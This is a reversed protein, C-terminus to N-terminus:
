GGTSFWGRRVGAAQAQNVAQAQTYPMQALLKNQQQLLQILTNGQYQTLGPLGPAAQTALGGPVVQEPGREAFSYPMGSWKGYGFVPESVMGGASYGKAGPVVGGANYWGFTQEHQWAAEPTGYRSNGTLFVQGDQAATWSGLETTVCWVAQRELEERHFGSGSGVYPSGLRVHKQGASDTVHCWNGGLYAALLFARLVPGENQCFTWVDDPALHGDAELLGAVFAARQDSSMALVMLELDEEYGSRAFLDRTYPSRLRFQHVPARGNAPPRTYESHPIGELLVRLQALQKPKAESQFVSAFVSNPTPHVTHGDGAVWGLLEAEALSLPLGELQDAPAALRIRHRTGIHQTETFEERRYTTKGVQLNKETLWRHNPTSRLSVRNSYMRTVPADEYYHVATIKTWASRGTAQDYGITEDGVRVEDYAKWGNRTLIKGDLPVCKIYNVMAVAQGAATNVNGGYLAYESAGNIFQAMGLAGSSPNVAGMNFGAERMEVDYLATWQPGTWGAKAAATQLAALASANSVGAMSIAAASAAAAARLAQAMESVLVEGATGVISNTINKTAVPIAANMAAVQDASSIVGGSAYAPVRDSRALAGFGPIGARRALDAFKAAHSTPIILEGPAAMVLQGDRGAPTAGPPVIGGSAYSYGNFTQQGTVTNTAIGTSTNSVINGQVKISGGGAITEDIAVRINPPLKQLSTWLTVAAKNSVGFQKAVAVFNGVLTTAKAGLTDLYQSKLTNWLQQAASTTLDLGSKALAVFQGEAGKGKTVLTDLYQLRLESWLQGAMATTLGLGNKALTVFTSKTTTAKGALSVLNQANVSGWLHQAQAATYNLGNQAFSIFANKAMSTYSASGTMLTNNKAIVGWLQVYASTTLGLAGTERQMALANQTSASTLTIAANATHQLGQSTATVAQWMITAQKASIGFSAAMALFQDEALKSSGSMQVLAPMLQGLAKEVASYGTSGNAVGAMATALGQLAQPGKEATFIAGSIATTLTQNMAGALNMTDQYLNSSSVTLQQEIKNLQQMPNKVNGTWKALAQFSTTAPGGALQALASVEAMAANSGKALPLLTAVMDKGAQALLTQGKAGAVSVGSLTTLSNYLTTANTVETAFAGRAALSAQTIGNLAAGAATGTVRFKGLTNTFTVGKAGTSSLAQSLTGLGTGFTSFASEGSTVMSIFSSYASTLKSISSQGMESQLALANVANGVQTANLGFQSWGQLLGQVKTEMTQLSDSTQVGAANLIGLAQTFTYTTKTGGTIGTFLQGQGTMLEGTVTLLHQEQGSLQNYAGELASIYSSVQEHIAPGTFVLAKLADGLHALNGVLGASNFQTFAAAVQSGAAKMSKAFGNGFNSLNNWNSAIKQFYQPSSAIQIQKSIAALNQPIQQLGQGGPMNGVATMKNIFNQEAGTLSNFNVALDYAAAGIAAIAVVYPNTLLILMNKGFALAAKGAGTFSAALKAGVSTLDTATQAYTFFGKLVNGIGGLLAVGATVALGVYIIFGHLALGAHMIPITVASFAEILRTVQVFVEQIIEAYGPVAKLFNGFTGGLNGIITGFRQFDAAANKMFNSASNSTFAETMRAALDRVVAAVQKVVTSFVGTKSTMVNIADGYLQWLTPQLSNQLAQLPGVAGQASYNMKGIQVGLASAAEQMAQLRKLADLAVPALAIGFAIVGLTAPVLVAAFEAIVDAGAHWVSVSSLIEPLVNDLAGGWLRIRSTLLGAGTTAGSFFSTWLSTATEAIADAAVINARMKTFAGGVSKAAAAYSLLSAASAAFSVTDGVTNSFLQRAYQNLFELKTMAPITNLRLQVEPDNMYKGVADRLAAGTAADIQPNVPIKWNGHVPAAKYMAQLAETLGAESIMPVVPIRLGDAFQSRLFAKEQAAITPDVNLRLQVAPDNMYRAVAAHLAEGTQPAIVPTLQIDGGIGADQLAWSAIAAQDSRVMPVVPVRIGGAFDREAMAKAAAVQEPSIVVDLGVSEAMGRLATEVKALQAPDLALGLSVRSTLAELEAKIAAVQGPDLAATVLSTIDANAILEKLKILQSQIQGQNLNVDLLDALQYQQLMQKIAALSAGIKGADLGLDINKNLAAIQAEVKAVEAPNLGLNLDITDGQIAEIEAKVQAAARKDLSPRVKVAGRVASLAKTVAAQTRPGFQDTEPYVVIYAEGILRAM